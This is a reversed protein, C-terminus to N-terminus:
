ESTGTQAAHTGLGRSRACGCANVTLQRSAPLAISTAAIEQRVSRGSVTLFPEAQSSPTYTTSIGVIPHESGFARFGLGWHDWDSYPFTDPPMFGLHVRGEWQQDGMVLMPKDAQDLNVVIRKKADRGGMVLFPRGDAFVGIDVGVVDRKYLFSMHAGGRADIEWRAAPTGSADVLEFKAARVV